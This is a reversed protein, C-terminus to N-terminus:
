RFGQLYGEFSISGMFLHVEVKIEFDLKMIKSYM